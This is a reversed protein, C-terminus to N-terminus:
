HGAASNPSAPVTSTLHTLNNSAKAKYLAGRHDGDPLALAYNGTTIFWCQANPSQRRGRAMLHGDVLIPQGATDTLVPPRRRATQAGKPENEALSRLEGRYWPKTSSLLGRLARRERILGNASGPLFSLSIFARARAGASINRHDVARAFDPKAPDVTITIKELPRARPRLVYGGHLVETYRQDDIEYSIVLNTPRRTGRDVRHVTARLEVGVDAVRDNERWEASYPWLLLLLVAAVILRKRERNRWYRKVKRVRNSDLGPQPFSDDTEGPIKPAQNSSASSQAEEPNTDRRM